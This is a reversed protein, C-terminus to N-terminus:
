KEEKFKETKYNINAKEAQSHHYKRPINYLKGDKYLKSGTQHFWFPVDKSICQNRLNLVWRYDCIRAFKGSEGGVVVEEIENNLYPLLNIKELLPSVAIFKHKIPLKLFIPLRFDAMKQNEVTCSIYVNEYGGRWDNPLSIFFRDPRKTIIFFNLDTREKIIKWVVERWADAEKLFFDSTFCTFVMEGSPIKYSGNRNKKTPLNFSANKTVISSDKEFKFDQRYVYCNQCGASIKKCGHWPNWTVSM